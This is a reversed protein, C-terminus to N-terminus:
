VGFRGGLVQGDVLQLGREDRQGPHSRTRWPASDLVWGWGSWGVERALVWIVRFIRESGPLPTPALFDAMAHVCM